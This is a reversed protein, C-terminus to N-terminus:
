IDIVFVLNISFLRSHSEETYTKQLQVITELKVNLNENVMVFLSKYFLLIKYFVEREFAM